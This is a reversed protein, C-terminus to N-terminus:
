SLFKYFIFVQINKSSSYQNGTPNYAQYGNGMGMPSSGPNGYVGNANAQYNVNASTNPLM